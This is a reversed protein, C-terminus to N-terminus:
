PTSAGGKQFAAPDDVFDNLWTASEPLFAAPFSCNNNYSGEIQLTSSKYVGLSGLRFSGCGWAPSFWTLHLPRIQFAYNFSCPAV